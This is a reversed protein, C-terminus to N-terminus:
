CSYFFCSICHRFWVWVLVTSWHVEYINGANERWVHQWHRKNKKNWPKCKSVDQITEPSAFQGAGHGCHLALGAVAHRAAHCLLESDFFRRFSPCLSATSYLFADWSKDKELNLQPIADHKQTQNLELNLHHIPNKNISSCLICYWDTDYSRLHIYIYTTLWNSINMVPLKIVYYMYIGERLSRKKKLSKLKFSLYTYIMFNYVCVCM